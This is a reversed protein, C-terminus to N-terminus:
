PREFGNRLKFADKSKHSNNISKRKADAAFLTFHSGIPCFAYFHYASTLQFTMIYIM